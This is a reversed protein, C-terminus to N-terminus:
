CRIQLDPSGSHSYKGISELLLSFNRKRLPPFTSIYTFPNEKEREASASPPKQSAGGKSCRFTTLCVPLFMVPDPNLRGVLLSRFDLHDMKILSHTCEDDSFSFYKFDWLLLLHPPNQKRKPAPTAPRLPIQSMLTFHKPAYSPRSSFHM